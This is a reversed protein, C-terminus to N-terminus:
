VSLYRKKIDANANLESISGVFVDSGKDIVVARDALGL